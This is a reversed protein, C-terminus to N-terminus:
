GEGAVEDEVWSKTLYLWFALGAYTGYPRFRRAITTDSAARGRLRAYTPRTWSDFILRGYRGLSTLMVHAAAYPGVGPLDLLRKEVDSDELEPDRLGELDLEGDAVERALRLLYAGRYGARAVDRYFSPGAEAMAAPSPFARRGDAAPAGLQGVLADTMRVTASWACNTTCVTKVVDEFVTPSRMMRGAGSTVWALEPDRAALEYFAGLDEDLALIRRVAGVLAARQRSPLVAGEARIVIEDPRGAAVSVTRVLGGELDLTTELVWHDTDVRQPALTAVGHSALTRRLDVPEGAAGVLPEIGITRV